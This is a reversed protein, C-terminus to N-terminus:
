QKNIVRSYLLILVINKVHGMYGNSCKLETLAYNKGTSMTGTYQHGRAFWLGAIKRDGLLVSFSLDGGCPLSVARIMGIHQVHKVFVSISIESCGTFM